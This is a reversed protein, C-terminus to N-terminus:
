TSGDQSVVEETRAPVGPTRPRRSRQGMHRDIERSRFHWNDRKSLKFSEHSTIQFRRSVLVNTRGFYHLTHRSLFPEPNFAQVVQITKKGLPM